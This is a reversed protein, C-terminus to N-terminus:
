LKTLMDPPIEIGLKLILLSYLFSFIYSASLAAACWGILRWFKIKRLQFCFAIVWGRLKAIFIALLIIASNATLIIALIVTLQVSKSYMKSAAFFLGSFIMQSGLMIVILIAADAITWTRYKKFRKRTLIGYFIGILILPISIIITGISVLLMILWGIKEVAFKNGKTASRLYYYAAKLLNKEVAKKLSKRLRKQQKAKKKM